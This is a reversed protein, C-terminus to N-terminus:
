FFCIHAISGSFLKMGLTQENSENGSVRFEGNRLSTAFIEENPEFACLSEQCCQQVTGKPGFMRKSDRGEM